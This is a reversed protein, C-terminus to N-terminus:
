GSTVTLAGADVGRSQGLPSELFGEQGGAAGGMSGRMRGAGGMNRRVLKNEQGDGVQGHVPMDTNTGLGSGVNSNEPSGLGM